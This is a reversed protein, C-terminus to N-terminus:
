TQYKISSLTQKSFLGELTLHVERVLDVFDLVGVVNRTKGLFDDLRYKISASDFFFNCLSLQHCSFSSNM